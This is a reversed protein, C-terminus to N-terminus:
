GSAEKAEVNRSRSFVRHRAAALATAVAGHLVADDGLASV